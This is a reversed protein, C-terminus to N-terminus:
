RFDRTSITIAPAPQPEPIVSNRASPRGAGSGTRADLAGPHTAGDGRGREIPFRADQNGVWRLLETLDELRDTVVHIVEGERQVKGHCAIMGASLVLRRQKEFRDPWLILNAVGTEDEITIFMVGKASGPKQRVLVIGPVIVRRGDRVHQLGACTVMRLAELQPRIFSVPHARLSLGISRYDEVVERGDRMPALPVPPEVLEPQPRRGLDAAAFLPLAEDALGKVQWLAQRRDLGLSQYADAEALKELSSAPVDARRWLEEISAYPMSGRHAVLQAGHENPL